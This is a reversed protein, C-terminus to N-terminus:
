IGEEEVTKTKEKPFNRKLPKSDFNIPAAKFCNKKLFM